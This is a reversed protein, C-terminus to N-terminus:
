PQSDFVPYVRFGFQCSCVGTRAARIELGELEMNVQDPRTAGLGLGIFGSGLLGCVRSLGM